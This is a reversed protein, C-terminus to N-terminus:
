SQGCTREFCQFFEPFYLHVLQLCLQYEEPHPYDTHNEELVSLNVRVLPSGAKVKQGETVLVEFGQGKLSVTDIGIHVIYDKGDADTLGIAHKTPFIMAVTGDVPSAVINGEPLVAFGEGALGKSFVADNVQSLKKVQGSCPSYIKKKHNFFKM